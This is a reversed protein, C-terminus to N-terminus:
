TSHIYIKSNVKTIQDSEGYASPEDTLDTDTDTDDESGLSHTARQIEKKKIKRSTKDIESELNRNMCCKYSGYGFGLTAIWGAIGMGFYLM